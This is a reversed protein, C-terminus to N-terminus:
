QAVVQAYLDMKNAAVYNGAAIACAFVAYANINKCNTLVGRQMAYAANKNVVYYILPNQQMTQLGAAHLTNAIAKQNRKVFRKATQAAHM